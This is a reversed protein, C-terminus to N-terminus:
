ANPLGDRSLTRLNVAISDLATYLAARTDDTLDRGALEVALSARARVQAAAIRGQETLTYVRRYDGTKTVLGRKEILAMQRSVDAKDKGSLECLQPATVGEACRAITILYIAHPGKLGYKTMEDAAIRHFCRSIEAIVYAFHEFRESQEPM